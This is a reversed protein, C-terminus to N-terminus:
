INANIQRVVEEGTQPDVLTARESVPIARVDMFWARFPQAIQQPSFRGEVAERFARAASPKLYKIVLAARRSVVVNGAQTM